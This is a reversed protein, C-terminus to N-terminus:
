YRLKTYCIEIGNNILDTSDARAHSAARLLLVLCSHSAPAYRNGYIPKMFHKSLSKLSTSNNVKEFQQLNNRSQFTSNHKAAALGETVRSQAVTADSDERHPFAKFGILLTVLQKLLTTSAQSLCCHRRLWPFNFGQNLSPRTARTAGTNPSALCNNQQRMSRIFILQGNVGNLGRRHLQM